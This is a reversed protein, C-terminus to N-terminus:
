NGGTTTKNPYTGTRYKKEEEAKAKEEASMQWQRFFFGAAVGANLLVIVVFLMICILAIFQKSVFDPQYPKVFPYVVVLPPVLIFISTVIQVFVRRSFSKNYSLRQDLFNAIARITFWFFLLLLYQGTFWLAHATFSFQPIFIYRVISVLVTFLFFGAFPVYKWNM